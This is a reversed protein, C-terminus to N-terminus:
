YGYLQTQDKEFKTKLRLLCPRLNHEHYMFLQDL